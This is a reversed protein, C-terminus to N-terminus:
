YGGGKMAEKLEPDVPYGDAGWGSPHPVSIKPSQCTIKAGAGALETIGLSFIGAAVRGATKGGSTDKDTGLYKETGDASVLYCSNLCEKQIGGFSSMSCSTSSGPNLQKKPASSGCGAHFINTRDCKDARFEINFM